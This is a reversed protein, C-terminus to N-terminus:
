AKVSRAKLTETVYWEAPATVGVKWCESKVGVVIGRLSEAREELIARKDQLVRRNGLAEGARCADAAQQITEIQKDLADVLLLAEFADINIKINQM